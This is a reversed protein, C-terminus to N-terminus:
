KKKEQLKKEEQVKQEEQAKKEQYMKLTGELEDKYEPLVMTAKLVLGEIYGVKRRMKMGRDILGRYVQIDRVKEKVLKEGITVVRLDDSSVSNLAYFQLAQAEISWNSTDAEEFLDNLVGLKNFKQFSTTISNIIEFKGNSYKFADKLAVVGKESDNCNVFYKGLIALGASLYNQMEYSPNQISHFIKLYNIIDEYKQNIISLRILEPIRDPSTPYKQAMQLNTNYAKVFEKRQYYLASLIKLTKYFEANYKISEEFSLVADDQANKDFHIKGIFYHGEYPLKSLPLANQFTEKASDLEGQIYKVRGDEIKRLYASPEVKHKVGALLTDIITAGTFPVSIIGDMDYELALSVESMSNEDTIIFFGSHIRNPMAKMHTDFLTVTSGGNINKNGIVYHPKKSQILAEADKFNDADFMNSMKAGLQTITKKISTRTSSSMEVVLWSKNEFYDLIPKNKKETPDFFTSM